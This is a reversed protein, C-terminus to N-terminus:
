SLGVWFSNTTSAITGLTGPLATTVGTAATGFRATSAALGANVTAFSGGEIFQPMTTGNAVLVVYVDGAAMAPPSVLAITKNGTSGGTNWVATQDASTAKFTGTADFLGAFCQGSTLGSGLTGLTVLINSVTRAVPLHVKVFNLVGAASLSAKGQVAIPDFSWALLGHDTPDFNYRPRAASFSRSSV